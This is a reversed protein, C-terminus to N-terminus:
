SEVLQSIAGITFQALNKAANVASERIKWLDKVSSPRKLISGVLAGARITGKPGFIALVEPPLDESLDDSIARIAMFGTSRAKCVKAVALSEMDVAIAGTKAHLERKEERTRIIRDATCLKGVHLGHEVDDSMDLRLSIEPNGSEYILSDGVVIHGIDMEPILAGSLGVSLIWSPEFADILANTAQTARKHGTGGEVVVIRVDGLSCDHFKLGNGAHTRTAHIKDLLPVVELHLACVIGITAQSIKTSNVNEDAM